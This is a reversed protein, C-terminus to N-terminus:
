PLTASRQTWAAGAHAPGNQARIRVSGGRRLQIALYIAVIVPLALLLFLGVVGGITLLAQVWGPLAAVGTCSQSIVNGAEDTVTMCSGGHGSGFVIAPALVLISIYGGPPLLTGILKDRVRWGSSLWLLIVGVPWFFPTLILAGVELWGWSRGPSSDVVRADGAAAAIEAPDGVRALLASVDSDSESALAAREEAIHNAIEGAIEDRREPAVGTLAAGLRAMYVGVLEDGHQATM